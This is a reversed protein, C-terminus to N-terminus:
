EGSTFQEPIWQISSKGDSYRTYCGLEESLLKAPDSTIRNVFDDFNEAFHTEYWGDHDAYFVKGSSPGEVPIVFYNGSHRVTAFAIGSRLCDPDDDPDLQDLWERVEAGAEEWGAIPLVDIGATDSLDDEYLTFGDHMEYVSEIAPDLSGVKSRLIELDGFDAPPNLVHHLKAIFQRKTKENRGGNTCVFAPNPRGAFEILRQLTKNV